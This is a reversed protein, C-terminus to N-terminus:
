QENLGWDYDIHSIKADPKIKIASYRNVFDQVSGGNKNFDMSYWKFIMSLQPKDTSVKNRFSDALFAKAQKSLQEDLKQPNYAENLLIPCSKSACVLAMHIRPDDFQKRLKGHEINNLDMKEKGIPIFKIDWPTNVFPIQIRSGIDKISKIPYYKIILKITFANYANIWYTMQEEKTWTKENPPNKTLLTLYQNLVVTDKIFGKYNVNGEKSVYKKLLGDYLEHTPKVQSHSYFFGVTLLFILLCKKM